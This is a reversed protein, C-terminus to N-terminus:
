ELLYDFDVPIGEFEMDSLWQNFIYGERKDVDMIRDKVYLAVMQENPLSKGFFDAMAASYVYCADYLSHEPIEVNYKKLIEKLKDKEIPKIDEEKGNTEKWMYSCAFEYAPRNFHYNNHKLYARKSYPMYDFLDMGTRIRKRM